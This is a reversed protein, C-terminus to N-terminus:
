LHKGTRIINLEYDFKHIRVITDLIFGITISLVSLIMLGTALISLPVHEIFRTSVYEVLVPIGAALGGAFFLSSLLTFFVLPKYYRFIQYVTGVIKIGDKITNIKSFSGTPREKYDIPVEVIRFRKDLAHLTMETELEFGSSLIPFNKVFNRSFCRYGSLIDNLSSGFLFNILKRVLTNGFNHFLRKTEVRYAGTKHRDGVTMDAENNIVPNIVSFVDKAKYTNDGDIMLYIDADVTLFAKRIANAKGQKREYLLEGKIIREEYLSRAIIATNDSSNNDIVYYFAEPLYERFDLLTNKITVEENFVPIIIAIRLSTSKM